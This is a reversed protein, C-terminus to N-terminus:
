FPNSGTKNSGSDCGVRSRFRVLGEKGEGSTAPLQAEGVATTRQVPTASAPRPPLAPRRAKGEPRGGGARGSGKGVRSEEVGQEARRRSM